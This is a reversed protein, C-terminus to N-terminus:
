LINLFFMGKSGYKGAGAMHVCPTGMSNWLGFSIRFATKLLREFRSDRSMSCATFVYRFHVLCLVDEKEAHCGVTTALM